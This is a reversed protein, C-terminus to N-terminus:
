YGALMPKATSFIFKNMHPFVQVHLNMYIFIFLVLNALDYKLTVGNPYRLFIDILKSFTEYHFEIEKQYILYQLSCQISLSRCFVFVM